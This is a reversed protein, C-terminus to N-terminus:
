DTKNDLHARRNAVMKPSRWTVSGVVVIFSLWRLKGDLSTAAVAPNKPVGDRSCPWQRRSCGDASAGRSRYRSQPVGGVAVHGPRLIEMEPKFQGADLVDPCQVVAEFRIAHFISVSTM